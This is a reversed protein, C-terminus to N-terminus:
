QSLPQCKVFIVYVKTILLPKSTLRSVTTCEFLGGDKDPLKSLVKGNGVYFLFLFRSNRTVEWCQSCRAIGCAVTPLLANIVDSRVAM